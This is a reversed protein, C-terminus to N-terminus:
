ARAQASRGMRRLWRYHAAVGALFSGYAHYPVGFERCTEEVAGSMRPYNVHCILPFLHHEKHYNLGGLLWTLIPNRMAFNVTVLAQHVDWPRELRGTDERPMPFDAKEVLHPITFVLTLVVSLVLTAVAYYFLVTWAPHLLMPVAFAWALFLLKGAVFVVVGWGRPRPVRNRGLKGTIVYRFDEVFQWKVALMGYFLWIYLHQWRHWWRWEQHPSMRALLGLDIDDDYGTINVYMHHIVSHMWRWRGSSSGMLDLTWAMLRNVWVRESYAQHGGDHQINFGVAAMCLALLVTLALGQWLATAVFVLLTYATGFVALIIATKLYMQWCDRKRRGTSRFHEDVRRHLAQHFSMDPNFEVRRLGSEVAQPRAEGVSERDEAM